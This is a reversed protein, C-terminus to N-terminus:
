LIVGTKLINDLEEVEQATCPMNDYHNVDIQAFGRVTSLDVTVFAPYGVYINQDRPTCMKPSTMILYPTQQAMLGGSGGFSGSRSIEPKAMSIAANAAMGVGAMVGGVSGAMGSGIAGAVGSAVQLMGLVANTYQGQTVPCDCACSGTFSYLVHGDAGQNSYCRIQAVISGSLIDVTYQVGIKGRMCDDPTLPVFGIYPLFISLKTYPSYDLYSGWKSTINIYGCDLTYYQETCAPMSIGTSINGVTLTKSSSAPHGSITPVIHLGLIADYPDAFLKKFNDPDFGGAWMYNALSKIQAASPAYLTVFGTDTASISPAGQYPIDTSSFDFDADSPGSPGSFGGDEYPDKAPLPTSVYNFLVQGTVNVLQGGGSDVGACFMYFGWSKQTFVIKMVYSEEKKMRVGSNCDEGQKEQGYGSAYDGSMWGWNMYGPSNSGNESIGRCYVRFWRNSSSWDVITFSIEIEDGPNFFTTGDYFKLSFRLQENSAFYNNGARTGESDYLTWGTPLNDLDNVVVNPM